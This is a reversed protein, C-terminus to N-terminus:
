ERLSKWFFPWLCFILLYMTVASSKLIEKAEKNESDKIVSRHEAHVGCLYLGGITWITICLIEM